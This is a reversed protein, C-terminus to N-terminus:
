RRFLYFEQWFPLSHLNLFVYQSCYVTLGFQQWIFKLFIVYNPPTLKFIKFFSTTFAWLWHSCKTGGGTTVFAFMPSKIRRDSRDAYFIASIQCTLYRRAPMRWTHGNGRNEVSMAASRLDILIPELSCARLAVDGRDAFFIALHTARKIWCNNFAGTRLFWVYRPLPPCIQLYM